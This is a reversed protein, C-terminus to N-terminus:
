REYPYNDTLSVEKQGYMLELAACLFV